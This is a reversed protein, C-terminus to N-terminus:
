AEPLPPWIQQDPTGYGESAFVIWSGGLTTNAITSSSWPFTTMANAPMGAREAATLLLSDANYGM